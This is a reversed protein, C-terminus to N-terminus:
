SSPTRRWGSHTAVAALVDTAPCVSWWWWVCRGAVLTATYLVDSHQPLKTLIPLLQPLVENEEPAVLQSV